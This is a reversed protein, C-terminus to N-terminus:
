ESCFRFRYRGPRQSLSLAQTLPLSVALDSGSGTRYNLANMTDWGTFMESRVAFVGTFACFRRRTQSVNAASKKMWENVQFPTEVEPM